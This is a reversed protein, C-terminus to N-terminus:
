LERGPHNGGLADCPRAPAYRSLSEPERHAALADYSADCECPEAAVAAAQASLRDLLVFALLLRYM